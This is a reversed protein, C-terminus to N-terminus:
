VSIARHQYATRAQAPHTNRALIEEFTEVPLRYTNNNESVHMAIVQELRNSLLRGLADAAQANSLHGRDSAVRQKIMYPYPGTELMRKDHNGELALIRCDRLAEFAEPTVVGSDTLYGIVDGSGQAFRFGFSESADHSTSFVLTEIGAVSLTDDRWFVEMDCSERLSTIEASAKMIAASTYITPHLDQKALGRLVVGLGKTHDTHEHTILIAEISSLAVGVEEARAFFDRKCIGCDVLLSRGTRTDEIITANGKSGSALVHMRLLTDTQSTDLLPQM